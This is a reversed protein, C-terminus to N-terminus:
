PAQQGQEDDQAAAEVEEAEEEEVKKGSIRQAQKQPTRLVQGLDERVLQEPWRLDEGSSEAIEIFM